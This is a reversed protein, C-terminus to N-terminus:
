RQVRHRENNVCESCSHIFFIMSRKLMRLLTALHKRFILILRRPMPSNQCLHTWIQDMNQLPLEPEGIVPDTDQGPHQSEQVAEQALRDRETVQSLQEASQKFIRERHDTDYHAQGVQSVVTAMGPSWGM